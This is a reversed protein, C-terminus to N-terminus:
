AKGARAELGSRRESRGKVKREQIVEQCKENTLGEPTRNIKKLAILEEVIVQAKRTSIHMAHAIWKYDALVITNAIISLTQIQETRVPAADEFNPTPAKQRMRRRRGASRATRDMSAIAGSVSRRKSSRRATRRFTWGSAVEDIRAVLSPPLKLGIQVRKEMGRKYSM